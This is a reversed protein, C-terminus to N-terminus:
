GPQLLINQSSDSHCSSGGRANGSGSACGLCIWHQALFRQAAESLFVLGGWGIGMGPLNGSERVRLFNQLADQVTATPPAEFLASVTRKELWGLHAVQLSSLAVQVGACSGRRAWGRPAAGAGPLFGFGGAADSYESPADM